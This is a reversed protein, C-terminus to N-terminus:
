DQALRALRFGGDSLRFGPTRWVRDASRAYGATYTWSGGRLVRIGSASNNCIPNKKSADPSAYFKEDYWDEVWEWVNGHMDHLGFANAPFSGVPTTSQRYKGEPGNGYPYNGDYNAETDASITKGFYFPTTTGARCAYEWEAETSLRYSAKAQKSLWQCYAMADNWTVGVVPHRDDQDFGPQLWNKKPDLKWKKEDWFYLGGSTEAETKYGTTKVFVAFQGRTVAYKGMWFGDLCVEHVPGEDDGREEESDPSGMKFCGAPIWVFSIGAFQREEGPKPTNPLIIKTRTEEASKMGELAEIVEGFNQPREDTKQELCDSLLDAFAHDGLARYNKRSPQTTSFIAQSLTKGFAYIDSWPGIKGAALGLQEPASYLFTGGLSEGALSKDLNGAAATETVVKRTMALGFDILKIEWDGNVGRRVM